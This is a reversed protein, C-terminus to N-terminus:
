IKVESIQIIPNSNTFNPLDNMIKDAHPTFAEQFAEVSEFTLHTMVVYPIEQGPIANALGYDINSGKLADGILEGAMPIHTDLYYDMDFKIDEGNPYLVSVRVM